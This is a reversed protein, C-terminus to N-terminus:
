EERKNKEINQFKPYKGLLAFIYPMERSGGTLVPLRRGVFRMDLMPNTRCVCLFAVYICISLHLSIIIMKSAIMSLVMSEAM